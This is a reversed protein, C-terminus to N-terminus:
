ALICFTTASLTSKPLLEPAPPITSSNVAVSTRVIILTSFQASTVSVAFTVLAPAKISESTVDREPILVRTTGSLVVIEEKPAERMSSASAEADLVVSHSTM